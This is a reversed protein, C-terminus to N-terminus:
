TTHTIRALATAAPGEQGAVPVDEDLDSAVGLGPDPVDTGGDAEGVAGHLGDHGVQLRGTVEGAGPGAPAGPVGHVVVAQEPVGGLLPEPHAREQVQQGRGAVVAVGCARAQVDAM